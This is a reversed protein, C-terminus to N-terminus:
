KLKVRYTEHCGTCKEQIADFAVKLSAADKVTGKVEAIAKSVPPIKADFDAKNKWISQKAGYTANVVDEKPNTAFVTSITPVSKELDAIAADVAKQDYPIEGKVTKLLVGYMSKGQARMLNDQKVALDQDAMVTGVGLLLTGAIVVTRIMPWNEMELLPELRLRSGTQVLRPKDM